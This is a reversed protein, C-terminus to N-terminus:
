FEFCPGSLRLRVSAASADLSVVQKAPSLTETFPYDTSLILTFPYCHRPLLNFLHFRVFAASADM